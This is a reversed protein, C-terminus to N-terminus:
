TGRKTSNFSTTLTLVTVPDGFRVQFSSCFGVKIGVAYGVDKGVIKGVKPRVMYCCGGRQDWFPVFHTKKQDSIKGDITITDFIFINHLYYGLVIYAHFEGM